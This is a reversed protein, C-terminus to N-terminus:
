DEAAATAASVQVAKAPIYSCWESISRASPDIDQASFVVIIFELIPDSM